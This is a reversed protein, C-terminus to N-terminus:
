ALGCLPRVHQSARRGASRQHTWVNQAYYPRCLKPPDVTTYLMTSITGITQNNCMFVNHYMAENNSRLAGQMCRGCGKGLNLNFTDRGVQALGSPPVRCRSTSWCAVTCVAMSEKAAHLSDNYRLTATKSCTSAVRGTVVAVACRENEVSFYKFVYMDASTSPPRDSLM